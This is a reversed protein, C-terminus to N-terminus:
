CAGPVPQPECETRTPLPLSGTIEILEAQVADLVDHPLGKRSPKHARTIRLGLRCLRTLGALAAPLDEDAAIRVATAAMDLTTEGQKPRRIKLLRRDVEDGFLGVWGAVQKVLGVTASFRTMDECLTVAAEFGAVVDSWKTVQRVKDTM